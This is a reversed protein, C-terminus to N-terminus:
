EEDDESFNISEEDDGMEVRVGEAEPLDGPDLRAEEGEESDGSM